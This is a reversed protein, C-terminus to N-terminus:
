RIRTITYITFPIAVIAGLIGITRGFDGRGPVYVRDGARLSLQDLTLGRGMAQRLPEGGWIQDTGREVRVDKVKARQTLGGALGVMDALPLDPPVAYFGPRAVEGEILIRLLPRTQVLPDRLYRALYARVRDQLEAHLVGGLPVDGVPLPLAPGPGVTFTDSLQREGEVKLLIRDGMQFDGGDLRSRILAAEAHASGDRQLRALTSELSARTALTSGATRGLPQQAVAPLAAAIWCLLAAARATAPVAPFPRQQSLLHDPM